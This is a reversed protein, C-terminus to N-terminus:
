HNGPWWWWWGGGGGLTLWWGGGLEGGSLGWFWVPNKCLLSIVSRFPVVTRTGCTQSPPPVKSDQVPPVDRDHPSSQFRRGCVPRQRPVAGGVWRCPNYRTSLSISRSLTPHKRLWRMRAGDWGRGRGLEYRVHRRAAYCGVGSVRPPMSGNVSVNIFM